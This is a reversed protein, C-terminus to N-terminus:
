RTAEIYRNLAKVGARLAPLVHAHNAKQTNVVTGNQSVTQMDASVRYTGSHSNTVVWEGNAAAYVDQSNPDYEGLHKSVTAVTLGGNATVLGRYEQQQASKTQNINNM